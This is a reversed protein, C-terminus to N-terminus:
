HFTVEEDNFGEPGFEDIRRAEGIVKKCYKCRLYRFCPSLEVDLRVVVGDVTEIIEKDCHVCKVLNDEDLSLRKEDTMM